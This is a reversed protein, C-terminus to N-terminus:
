LKKQMRHFGISKNKGAAPIGGKTKMNVDPIKNRVVLAVGTIKCIQPKRGPM